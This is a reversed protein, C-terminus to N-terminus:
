RYRVRNYRIDKTIQKNYINEFAYISASVFRVPKLILSPDKEQKANINQYGDITMKKNDNNKLPKNSPEFICVSSSIFYFDCCGELKM